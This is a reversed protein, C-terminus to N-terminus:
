GPCKYLGELDTCQKCVEHYHKLIHHMQEVEERTLTQLVFFTLMNTPSALQTHSIISQYHLTQRGYPLLQIRSSWACGEHHAGFCNAVAASSSSTLLLPLLNVCDSHTWSSYVFSRVMYQSDTVKFRERLNRFVLPCYEKVKFHSPMNDRSYAGM